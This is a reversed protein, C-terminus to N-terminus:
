DGGMYGDQAGRMEAAWQRAVDAFIDLFAACEHKTMKPNIKILAAGLAHAMIDTADFVKAKGRQRAAESFDLVTTTM